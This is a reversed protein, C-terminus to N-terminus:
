KKREILRFGLVLLGGVCDALFDYFSSFRGPVFAQHSEDFFAYFIVFLIAIVYRKEPFRTQKMFLFVLVGLIFFEIVHLLKDFGVIKEGVEGIVEPAPQSSMYFILGIYVVLLILFIYKKMM